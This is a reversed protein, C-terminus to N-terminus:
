IGLHRRREENLRQAAMAADAASVIVTVIWAVVMLWFFTRQASGMDNLAEEWGPVYGRGQPTRDPGLPPPRTGAQIQGLLM